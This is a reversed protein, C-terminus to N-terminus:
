PAGRPPEGLLYRWADRLRPTGDAGLPTRDDRTTSQHPRPYTYGGQPELDTFLIHTGDYPPESLEAQVETGFQKMDLATLNARIGAVLSDRQHFLAFYKDAPTVGIFVWPDVEEPVRADPPASFMVVRNVRRLQGILAAQGGGQSHGAVVIQSWKPTGDQELFRSWGEDPFQDDLYLLLKALRNYISNAPTVDTLKSRDIGDLIELRMNGSCDRDSSGKCISDVPVNNQYMLGIVHYGIRAGERQVLQWSVPRGNAGPMFVLLKPNGRASTDLWVYHHNLQPNVAPVYNIEADTAQPAIRHMVLPAVGSSHSMMPGASPSRAADNPAAADRCGVLALGILAAALAHRPVRLM